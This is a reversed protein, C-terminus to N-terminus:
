STKRTINKRKKKKQNNNIYIKLLITAKQKKM